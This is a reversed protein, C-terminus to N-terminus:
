SREVNRPDVPQSVSAEPEKFKYFRILEKAYTVM